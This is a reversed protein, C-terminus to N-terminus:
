RGRRIRPHSATISTAATRRPGRSGTVYRATGTAPCQPQPQSNHGPAARMMPRDPQFAEFPTITERDRAQSRSGSRKRIRWRDFAHARSGTFRDVNVTPSRWCSYKTSAGRSRSSTRFASSFWLLSSTEWVLGDSITGFLPVEFSRARKLICNSWYAAARTGEPHLEPRVGLCAYSRSRRLKGFVGSWSPRGRRRLKKTRSKWAPFCNKPSKLANPALFVCHKPLCSTLRCSV